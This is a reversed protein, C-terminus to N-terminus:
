ALAKTTRFKAVQSHKALYKAGAEDSGPVVEAEELAELTQLVARSTQSCTLFLDQGAAVLGGPTRNRPVLPEPAEPVLVAAWNHMALCGFGSALAGEGYLGGGGSATIAKVSPAVLGLGPGHPVPATTYRYRGSGGSSVVGGAGGGGGPVPRPRLSGVGCASIAIMAVSGNVTLAGNPSPELLM